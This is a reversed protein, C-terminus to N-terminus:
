KKPEECSENKGSQSGSLESHALYHADCRRGFSCFDVVFHRLSIRIKTALQEDFTVLKICQHVTKIFLQM